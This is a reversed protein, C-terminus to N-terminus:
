RAERIDRHAPFRRWSRELRNFYTRNHLQELALGYMHFNLVPDSGHIHISHIDEPLMAVGTGAGVERAGIETVGGDTRQYFRNLEVGRIGVIVAWTTHNHPPTDVGANAANVYLAFRNDPDQAVRYLCSSRPGGPAPPPFDEITFLAERAALAGLETKVMELSERSVGRADEIQRVRRVAESIAARRESAISM